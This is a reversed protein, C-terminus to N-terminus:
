CNKLGLEYMADEILSAGYSLRKNGELKQFEKIDDGFGALSIIEKWEEIIDNNEFFEIVGQKRGKIKSFLFEARNDPIIVTIEKKLSDYSGKVTNFGSFNKKYENYLMRKEM